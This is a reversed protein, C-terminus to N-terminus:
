RWSTAEVLRHDILLGRRWCRPVDGIDNTPTPGVRFCSPWQGTDDIYGEVHPRCRSGIFRPTCLRDQVVLLPCRM